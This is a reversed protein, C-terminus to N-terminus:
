RLRWNMAHLPLYYAKSREYIRSGVAEDIELIEDLSRETSIITLLNRDNYRSNLVEFALSGDASTPQQGKGTKFLDDIYLVKVTKLPEVLRQYEESENVCAKIRVADDRWMMYRVPLGQEMLLGCLATCLHTKGAGVSGAMVFWGDQAEAYQLAMQKAKRQWPEPTQWAQLTYRTLLESLGSRAMRELSRRQEMCGCPEIYRRGTEDVRHFYGRNLCAPCDVGTLSGPERNCLEVIQREREIGTLTTLPQDSAIGKRLRERILEPMTLTEM